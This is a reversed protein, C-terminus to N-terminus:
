VIVNAVKLATNKDVRKANLHISLFILTVILLLKKM